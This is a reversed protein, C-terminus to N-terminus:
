ADRSTVSTLLSELSEQGSRIEVGITLACLECRGLSPVRLKVLDKMTCVVREVHLGESWKTLAAIDAARYSFHDSFVRFDVIEAGCRRLTEQFGRPNGVGCFAVIRQGRLQQVDSVEGNSRRLFQPRHVLEVLIADRNTERIRQAIRACEDAEVLDVRSIAIAHARRLSPLPERLLGRPLLHFFGFPELADILVIDLDRHLRRHQFADDLVLVRSGFDSIAQRAAAVRDANQLHPVDPILAALELAEDNPMGARAGYGRSILAVRQNHAQLWQAIWAVFPTKGTGGTTVNGVSIVPVKVRHIKLAGSDYRRNRREIAVRYIPEAAALVKRLLSARWGKRRGSVIDRFDDASLM